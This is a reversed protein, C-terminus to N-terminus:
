DHKKFFSKIRCAVAGLFGDQAANSLLEEPGPMRPSLELAHALSRRGEVGLGLALEARGKELWLLPTAPDISLGERAFKLAKAHHGQHSHIRAAHWRVSWSDPASAAAREFSHESKQGGRALLVEGRALWVLPAQHSREVAADSYALAAATDGLRALTVARCALIEASTPFREAAQAAWTAAEREEGLETLMRLQGVWAEVNGPEFELVKSYHRLAERLFGGAFQAAAEGLYFRADKAPGAHPPNDPPAEGFELSGFRSM